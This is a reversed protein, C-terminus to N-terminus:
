ELAAWRAYAADLEAQLSALRANAANVAAAGQRYLAPDQLQAALGAVEGELAEIRGPLEDFEKQERFSRKRKPAAAAPAPVVPTPVVQPTPRPAGAPPAAARRGPRV